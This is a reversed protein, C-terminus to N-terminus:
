VSVFAQLWDLVARAAVLRNTPAGGRGRRGGPRRVRERPRLINLPRCKPAGAATPVPKTVSECGAMRRIAGSPTDGITPDGVGGGEKPRMAVGPERAAAAAPTAPAASAAPLLAPVSTALVVAGSSFPRPSSCSSSFAGDVGRVGRPPPALTLCAVGGGAGREHFQRGCHRGREREGRKLERGCECECERGRELERDPWARVREGDSSSEGDRSSLRTCSFTRRGGGAAGVEGGNVGRM